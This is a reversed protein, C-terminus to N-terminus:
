FKLTTTSTEVIMTSKDTKKVQLKKNWTNYLKVRISIMQKGSLNVKKMIFYVEKDKAINKTRFDVKDSTSIAM